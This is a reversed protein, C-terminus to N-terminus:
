LPNQNIEKDILDRIFNAPRGNGRHRCYDYQRQSLPVSVKHFRTDASLRFYQPYKKVAERRSLVEDDTSLRSSRLSASSILAFISYARNVVVLTGSPVNDLNFNYTLPHTEFDQKM